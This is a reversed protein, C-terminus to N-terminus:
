IGNNMHHVQACTPRLHFGVPCDWFPGLGLTAEPDGRRPEILANAQYRWALTPREM